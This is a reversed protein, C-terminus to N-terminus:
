KKLIDIIAQKLIQAAVEHGAENYHTPYKEIGSRIDHINKVYDCINYFPFGMEDALSKLQAYLKKGGFGSIEGCYDQEVSSLSFNIVM